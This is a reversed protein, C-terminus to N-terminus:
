DGLLRKRAKFAEVIDAPLRTLMQADTWGGALQIAKWQWYDNTSLPSAVRNDIETATLDRVTWTKTIINDAFGWVEADRVQDAGLTPDTIVLEYFNHQNLNDPAPNASILHGNTQRVYGRSDSQCNVGKAGDWECWTAAYLPSALAVFMIAFVVITRKM